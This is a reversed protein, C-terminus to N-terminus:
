TTRGSGHNTILLALANTAHRWTPIKALPQMGLSPVSLASSVTREFFGTRFVWAEAGVLELPPGKSKAGSWWFYEKKSGIFTGTLAQALGRAALWSSIPIFWDAIFSLPTKELLLDAPSKLGLLQPVDVERIRAIIQKRLVCEQRVPVILQDLGAPGGLRIKKSVRFTTQLPFNLLQALCEAADKVDNLTPMVAYNFALVAQASRKPVLKRAKAWSAKVAGQNGGTAINLAQKIQGRKMAGVAKNIRIASGAIFSLAEPLEGLSIALNFTSGAVKTRLRGLLELEDNADWRRPFVGEAFLEHFGGWNFSGQLNFRVAVRPNSFNKWSCTYPHESRRQSKPPKAWLKRRQWKFQGNAKWFPLLQYSPPTPPDDSGSWTKWVYIGTLYPGYMGESPHWVRLDLEKTGITM